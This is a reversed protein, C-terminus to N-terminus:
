RQKYRKRLAEATVYDIGLMIHGFLDSLIEDTQEFDMDERDWMCRKLKSVKRWIEAFQGRAGLTDAAFYSDYTTSYDRAKRRFLDVMDPLHQRLIEDVHTSEGSFNIVLKEEM